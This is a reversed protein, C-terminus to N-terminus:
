VYNVFRFMPSLGLPLPLKPDRESHMHSGLRDWPIGVVNGFGFGKLSFHELGISKLGM